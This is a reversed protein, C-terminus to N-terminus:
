FRRVLTIGFQRGNGLYVAEERISCSQCLLPSGYELSSIPLTSAVWEEDFMNDVWLSIDMEDGKFSLRYNFINNAPIKAYNLSTTPRKGEHSFDVRNEIDFGKFASPIVHTLSTYFQTKSTKAIQNGGVDGNCSSSVFSGAIAAAQELCTEEFAGDQFGSDYKPDLFTAAVAWILNDTIAWTADLEIGASSAGTGNVVYPATGYTGPSTSQLDTWDIYFLATNLTLDGDLLSSKSGVEITTNEEPDFSAFEMGERGSNIGGTKVGNAIYAYFLNDDNPRYEVTLRGSWYDFSTSEKSDALILGYLLFNQFVDFNQKEETYRAEGGVRITETLEFSASGFYGFIEQGLKSNFDSIPILTDIQGILAGQSATQIASSSDYYSTGLLWDFSHSGNSALQLDVSTQKAADGASDTLFYASVPPALPRNVASLDGVNDFFGDYGSETYGFKGTLTSFDFEYDVKLYALTISGDNGRGRNDLNVSDGAEIEGDFLTYFSGNENVYHAGTNNKSPSQVVLTPQDEEVENKLAFLKLTLRDTPYLLLSAGISQRKDWGGLNDGGRENEITGDFTSYGGFVRLAGIDGFSYNASGKVGRRGDSGLDFQITAENEDISPARTVYNIAGAFSDRGYLASQPGKAVEIQAIDMNGFELGSRNNIYIGDMFVGVNTQIAGGDTQALGRIIPSGLARTNTYSLGPTSAALDEVSYINADRLDEESMASISLPVDQLGEQRRRATVIIKEISAQDAQTTLEDGADQAM